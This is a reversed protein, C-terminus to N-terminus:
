ENYIFKQFPDITGENVGLATRLENLPRTQAQELIDTTRLTFSLEVGMIVESENRGDPNEIKTWGSFAPVEVLSGSNKQWNPASCMIYVAQAILYDLRMSANQSASYAPFGGVTDVKTATGVAFCAIKFIPENKYKGVSPYAGENPINGSENNIFIAPLKVADTVEYTDKNVDFDIQYSIQEATLSHPSSAAITKQQDRELIFMDYIHNKILTFNMPLILNQLVM